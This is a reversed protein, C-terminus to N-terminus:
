IFISLSMPSRLDEEVEKDEVSEGGVTLSDAAVAPAILGSCESGEM